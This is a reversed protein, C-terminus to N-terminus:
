MFIFYILWVFISVLIAFVFDVVTSAGDFVAGFFNRSPVGKTDISMLFSIVTIVAPIMWWGM